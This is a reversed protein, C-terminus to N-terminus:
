GTVFVQKLDFQLYERANTKGSAKGRGASVTELEDLTVERHHITREPKAEPTADMNRM